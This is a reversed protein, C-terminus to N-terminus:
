GSTQAREFLEEFKPHSLCMYAKLKYQCIDWDDDRGPFSKPCPLRRDTTSLAPAQDMSKIKLISLYM